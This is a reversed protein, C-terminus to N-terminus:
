TLREIAAKITEAHCRKPACWCFLRLKGHKRYRSILLSFYNSARKKSLLIPFYNDYRDCVEDRDEESHMRFPNGLPTTRDVKMDYSKIAKDRRLNMIEITM